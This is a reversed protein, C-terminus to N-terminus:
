SCYGHWKKTETLENCDCAWYSFTEYYGKYTTPVMACSCFPCVPKNTSILRQLEQLKTEMAEVAIGDDVLSAAMIRTGLDSM